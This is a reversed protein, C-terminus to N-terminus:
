RSDFGVGRNYAVLLVLRSLFKSHKSANAHSLGTAEIIESVNQQGYKLCCGIKLAISRQYFGVKLFDALLGLTKAFSRRVVIM